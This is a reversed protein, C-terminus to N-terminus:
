WHLVLPLRPRLDLQQEGVPTNGNRLTGTMLHEDGHVVEFRPVDLALLHSTAPLTPTTLVVRHLAFTSLAHTEGFAKFASDIQFLMPEESADSGRAVAIVLVSVLATTASGCNGMHLSAAFCIMPMAGFLMVSSMGPEGFIVISGAVVGAFIGWPSAQGLPHRWERPTSLAPWSMAVPMVALMAIANM